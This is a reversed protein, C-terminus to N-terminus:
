VDGWRECLANMKKIDEEYSAYARVKEGKTENLAIHREYVRPTYAELLEFEDKTPSHDSIGEMLFDSHFLGLYAFLNAPYERVCCLLVIDPFATQLRAWEDQTPVSVVVPVKRPVRGILPYLENICAVKIFPTPSFSLAEYLSEADFVSATAMFGNKNAERVFEKYVDFRLPIGLEENKFLQAKLVTRVWKRMPFLDAAMECVRKFYGPENHSLNGSGVDFVITHREYLNFKSM